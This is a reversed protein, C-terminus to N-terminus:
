LSRLKRLRECSYQIHKPPLYLEATSRTSRMCLARPEVGLVEILIFNFFFRIVKGELFCFNFFFYPFKFTKFTNASIRLVKPLSCSLIPGNNLHPFYLDFNLGHWVASGPHIWTTVSHLPVWNELRRPAEAVWFTTCSGANRMVREHNPRHDGGCDDHSYSATNQGRNM